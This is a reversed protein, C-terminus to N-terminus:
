LLGPSEPTLSSESFSLSVFLENSLSLYTHDTFYFRVKHLYKQDM